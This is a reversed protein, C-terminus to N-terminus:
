PAEAAEAPVRLAYARGITEIRIARFGGICKRLRVVAMRVAACHDKSGYLRASLEKVNIPDDHRILAVLLEFAKADLGKVPRGNIVVQRTEINAWVTGKRVVFKFSKADAIPVRGAASALADKVTRRLVHADFPKRLLAFADFKRRLSALADDPFGGLKGTAIIVPIHCTEPGGRLVGALKLGDIKEVGIDLIFLDPRWPRVRELASFGDSEIAVEHGDRALCRRYFGVMAHDDEVVLIRSPSAM